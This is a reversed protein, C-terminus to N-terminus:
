IHEEQNRGASPTRCVPRTQPRNARATRPTSPGCRPLNRQRTIISLIEKASDSKIIIHAQCKGRPRVEHESAHRGCPTFLSHGCHEWLTDGSSRRGMWKHSGDGAYCLVAGLERGVGTAAAGEGAGRGEEAPRRAGERSLVGVLMPRAGMTGSAPGRPAAPARAAAGEAWEGGERGEGEDGDDDDDDSGGGGASAEPGGARAGQKRGGM